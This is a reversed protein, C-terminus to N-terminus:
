AELIEMLYSNIKIGSEENVIELLDEESILVRINALNNKCRVILNKDNNMKGYFLEILVKVFYKKRNKRINEKINNKLKQCFNKIKKSRYENLSDRNVVDKSNIENINIAIQKIGEVKMENEFKARVAEEYLNEISRNKARKNIIRLEEDLSSKKLTYKIKIMEIKKRKREEEYKEDEQLNKSLNELINENNQEVDCKSIRLQEIFKEKEINDSYYRLITLNNLGRFLAVIRCIHKIVEEKYKIIDYIYVNVLTQLIFLLENKEKKWKIGTKNKNNKKIILKGIDKFNKFIEDEIVEPEKMYIEAEILLCIKILYFDSYYSLSMVKQLTNAISNKKIESLEDKRIIINLETKDIVEELLLLYVFLINLATGPKNLIRNVFFNIKNNSRLLKYFIQVGKYKLLKEIACIKKIIEQFENFCKEPIFIKNMDKKTNNELHYHYEGSYEKIIIKRRELQIKFYLYKTEIKNNKCMLPFLPIYTDYPDIDIFKYLKFFGELIGDDWKYNTNQKIDIISYIDVLEKTNLEFFYMNNEINIRFRIYYTDEDKKLMHYIHLDALTVINQDSCDFSNKKAIFSELYCDKECINDYYIGCGTNNERKENNIKKINEIIKKM